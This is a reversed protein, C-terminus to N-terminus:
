YARNNKPIPPTKLVYKDPAHLVTYKPGVYQMDGPMEGRCYRVSFSRRAQEQCVGSNFRRTSPPPPTALVKRPVCDALELQRRQDAGLIGAERTVVPDSRTRNPNYPPERSPMQQMQQAWLPAPM